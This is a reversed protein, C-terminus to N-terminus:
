RRVFRGAHLLRANPNRRVEYRLAIRNRYTTLEALSYQSISRGNITLAQQTANLAQGQLAADIADLLKKLDDEEGVATTPDPDIELSAQYVTFRDTGKTVTGTLVHRGPQAKQTTTDTAAVRVQYVGDVATVQTGWELDRDEPGRITYQLEWGDDPPYQQLVRDWQWSDGLTLRKPETTPVTTTM